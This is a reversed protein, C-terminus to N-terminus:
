LTPEALLAQLTKPGAKGDVDELGRSAQYESVKGWFGLRWLTVLARYGRAGEADYLSARGAAWLYVTEASAGVQLIEEAKNDHLQIEPLRRTAAGMMGLRKAEEYSEIAIREGKRLRGMGRDYTQGVYTVDGPFWGRWPFDSHGGVGEVRVPWGYTTAGLELTPFSHKIQDLAKFAINALRDRVLRDGSKWAAEPDYILTGIGMEVAEKAINFLARVARDDDRDNKWDSAIPDVGPCLGIRCDPWLRQLQLIKTKQNKPWGQVRIAPPPVSGLAASVQTVATNLDGYLDLVPGKM